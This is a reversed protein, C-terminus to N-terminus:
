SGYLIFSHHSDCIHLGTAIFVNLIIMINTICVSHLIFIFKCNIEFLISTFMVIPIHQISPQQSINIYQYINTNKLYRYKQIQSKSTDFYRFINIRKSKEIFLQKKIAIHDDYHRKIHKIKTIYPNGTLQNKHKEYLLLNKSHTCKSFSDDECNRSAVRYILWVNCCDTM